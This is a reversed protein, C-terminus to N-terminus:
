EGPKDTEIGYTQFLKGQLMFFAFLGITLGFTKFNVWADTSMTRWIVENLVALLVFFVTVRKTLIMWGEPQMPLMEGMVSQMYSQGRLLGFGLVLAFLTYIMTPKMKFFREDNLWVTMGGFVVVLVLTVIQMKSLTGTLRWLVLTSLALLPIFAATVLIFGSYESGGIVFTRDRLLMYGVFFALIPGMDLALKLGQSINKEAM